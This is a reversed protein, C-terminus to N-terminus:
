RTVTRTPTPSSGRHTIVAQYLEVENVEDQNATYVFGPSGAAFGYVSGTFPMAGSVKVPKGGSISVLFLEFDVTSNPSSKAYLVRAGGPLLSFSAFAPMEDLELPGSSGDVPASFLHGTAGFRGFVVRTSSPDLQFSPDCGESTNGSLRVAPSSGDVPAGFLELRHDVLDDAAFVV